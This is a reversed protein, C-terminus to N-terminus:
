SDLCELDLRGQEESIYRYSQPANGSPVFHTLALPTCYRRVVSVKIAHATERGKFYSNFFKRSIGSFEHTASWIASPPGSLVVDFDFEGVVKGVPMTAYIVVTRVDKNKFINKRFEYRKVGQLIKEAYEPKISLLVKM